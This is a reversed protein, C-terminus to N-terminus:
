AAEAPTQDRSQRAMIARFDRSLALLRADSNGTADAFIDQVVIEFKAHFAEITPAPTELMAAFKAPGQDTYVGDPGEEVRADAANADTLEALARDWARERLDIVARRLPPAQDQTTPLLPYLKGVVSSALALERRALTLIALISQGAGIIKAAHPGPVRAAQELVEGQVMANATEIVQDAEGIWATACECAERPDTIAVELRLGEGDPLRVEGFNNEHRM